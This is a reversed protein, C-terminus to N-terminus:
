NNLRYLLTPLQASRPALSGANSNQSCCKNVIMLPLCKVERVRSKEQRYFVTQLLENKYLFYM